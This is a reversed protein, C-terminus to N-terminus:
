CFTKEYFKEFQKNAFNIKYFKDQLVLSGALIQGFYKLM